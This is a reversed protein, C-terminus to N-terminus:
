CRRGHALGTPWRAPTGLWTAPSGLWAHKRNDFRCVSSVAGRGPRCGSLAPRLSTSPPPSGGSAAPHLLHPASYVRLQPRCHVRRTRRHSTRPCRRRNPWASSTPAGADPGLFPEEHDYYANTNSHQKAVRRRRSRRVRSGLGARCCRLM